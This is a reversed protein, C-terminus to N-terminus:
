GDPVSFLTVVEERSNCQKMSEVFQPDQFHQVLKSFLQLHVENSHEPALMGVVLWVPKGDPADYDIPTRLRIVSIVPQELNRIRGHPVAIGGGLGTSGLRERETLTKLICDEALGESGNYSLRAIHEFLRKRSTTELNLDICGPDLYDTLVPELHQQKVNHLM